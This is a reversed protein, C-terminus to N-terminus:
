LICSYVIKKKDNPELYFIIHLNFINIKGIEIFIILYSKYKDM